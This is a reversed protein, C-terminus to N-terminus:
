EPLARSLMLLETKSSITQVFEIFGVNSTGLDM